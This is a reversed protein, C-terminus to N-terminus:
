GVSDPRGGVTVFVKVIKVFEERLRGDIHESVYGIMTLIFNVYCCWDGVLEQLRGGEPRQFEDRGMGVPEAAEHMFVAPEALSHQM